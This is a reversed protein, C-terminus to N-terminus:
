NNIIANILPSQNDEWIFIKYDASSPLATSATILRAFMQFPSVMLSELKGNDDYEAIMLKIKSFDVSNDATMIFKLRQASTEMVISVKDAYEDTIELQTSTIPNESDFIQKIEEASLAQNYFRFEDIYGNTMCFNATELGETIEAFTRTSTHNSYKADEAEGDFYMTIQEGSKVITYMHMKSYLELTSSVAPQISYIYAGNECYSMVRIMGSGMMWTLSIDNDGTNTSFITKFSSQSTFWFSMTFDEAERFADLPLSLSGSSADFCENKAPYVPQYDPIVGECESAICATRCETDYGNGSLDKITYRNGSEETDQIDFSYHLVPATEEAMVINISCIFLFLLTLITKRM